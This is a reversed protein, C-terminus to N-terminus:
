HRRVQDGQGVLGHGFGPLVEGLLDLAAAAPGDVLGPGVAHEQQAAAVVEAVPCGEPQLLHEGRVVGGAGKIFDGGWGVPVGGASGLLRRRLQQRFRPCSTVALLNCRAITTAVKLM